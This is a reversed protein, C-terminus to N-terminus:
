PKYSPDTTQSTGWQIGDEVGVSGEHGIFERRRKSRAKSPLELSGVEHANGAEVSALKCDRGVTKM